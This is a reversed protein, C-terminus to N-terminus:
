LVTCLGTPFNQQIKAAFESMRGYEVNGSAIKFVGQVQEKTAGEQLFTLLHANADEKSASLNIHYEVCEPILGLVKLTMAITKANMEELFEQANEKIM